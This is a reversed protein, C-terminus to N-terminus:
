VTLYPNAGSASRDNNSANSVKATTEAAMKAAEATPMRTSENDADEKPLKQYIIMSLASASILVALAPHELNWDPLYFNALKVISDGFGCATSEEKTLKETSKKLATNNIIAAAAYDIANSMFLEQNKREAKPQPQPSEQTEKINEIPIDPLNEVSISENTSKTSSEETEEM